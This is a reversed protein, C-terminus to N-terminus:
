CALDLTLPLVEMTNLLALNEHKSNCQSLDKWSMGTKQQGVAFNLLLLEFCITNHQFTESDHPATDSNAVVCTCPSRFVSIKCTDVSRREHSLIYDLCSTSPKTECFISAFFISYQKPLYQACLLKKLLDGDRHM